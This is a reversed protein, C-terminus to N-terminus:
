KLKKSIAKCRVVDQSAAVVLNPVLQLRKLGSLGLERSWENVFTISDHSGVLGPPPIRATAEQTQAWDFTSEWWADPSDSLLEVTRTAIQKGSSLRVSAFPIASFAENRASCKLSVDSEFAVFGESLCSASVIGSATSADSCGSFFLWSNSSGDYRLTTSDTTASTIALREAAGGSTQPDSMTDVEDFGLVRAATALIRARNRLGCTSLRDLAARGPIGSPALAENLTSGARLTACLRSHFTAAALGAGGKAVLFYVTSPRNLGRAGVSPPRSSLASYLGVCCSPSDFGAVWSERDQGTPMADLHPGIEVSGDATESPVAEAMARLREKRDDSRLIREAADKSVRVLSVGSHWNGSGFVDLQVGRADGDIRFVVNKFQRSEVSKHAQPLAVAECGDPTAATLSSRLEADLEELALVRAM